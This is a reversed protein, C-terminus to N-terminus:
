QCFDECCLCKLKLSKQWTDPSAGQRLYSSAAPAQAMPMARFIVEALAGELRGQTHLKDMLLPKCSPSRIGM